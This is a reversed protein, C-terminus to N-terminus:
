FASLKHKIDALNRLLVTVSFLLTIYFKTSFTECEVILAIFTCCHTDFYMDHLKHSAFKTTIFGIM